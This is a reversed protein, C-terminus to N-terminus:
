KKGRLDKMVKETKGKGLFGKYKEIVDEKQKKFIEIEHDKKVFEVRDGPKLGIEERIKKPITVQGKKTLKSM